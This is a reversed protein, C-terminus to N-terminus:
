KVTNQSCYLVKSKPFGGNHVLKHRKTFSDISIILTDYYLGHQIHIQILGM